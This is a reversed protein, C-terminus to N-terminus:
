KLHQEEKFRAEMALYDAWPSPALERFGGCARWVASLCHLDIDFARRVPANPAQTIRAVLMDIPGGTVHPIGVSYENSEHGYLPSSTSEVRYMLPVPDDGPRFKKLRVQSISTFSEDLKGAKVDFKVYLLWPRVGSRALSSWIWTPTDVGVLRRLTMPMIEIEFTCDRINCVTETLPLAVQPLEGRHLKDPPPILPLGPPPFHVVPFQLLPGGGYRNALERVEVFGATSFPFAKLDAIFHEARRRALLSDLYLSLWGFALAGLFAVSVFLAIVRVRRLTPM